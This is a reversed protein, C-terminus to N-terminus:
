KVWEYVDWAWNALRKTDEFSGSRSKAGFLVILLERDKDIESPRITTVLNWGSEYLFGTKSGTVYLDDYQSKYLMWNTNKMLKSTGRNQVYIERQATTTYRQIEKRLFIRRALRAFERPTSVNGVEIGTPDVFKTKILNLDSARQNMQSLFEERPLQTTRSLANAANNASAVLTAYFLDNVSFTDKDSVWLRAGGVNDYNRVEHSANLMVGEELVVDATILKTLSAIPWQLNERKVTLIKGTSKDMVIYAESGIQDEIERLDVRNAVADYLGPGFFKLEEHEQWGYQRAWDELDLLFGASTKPVARHTVSDFAAQLDSRQNYVAVLASYDSAAFLTAPSVAVIVLILIVVLKKM